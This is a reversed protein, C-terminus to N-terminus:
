GFGPSSHPRGSLYRTCGRASILACSLSSASSKPRCSCSGCTSRRPRTPTGACRRSRIRRCFAFGFTNNFFSEEVPPRSLAGTPPHPRAPCRAGGGARPTHRPRAARQALAARAAPLAHRAARWLRARHPGGSHARGRHARRGHPLRRWRRPPHPASADPFTHSGLNPTFDAPVSLVSRPVHQVEAM